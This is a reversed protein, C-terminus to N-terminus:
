KENEDDELSHKLLKTLKLVFEEAEHDDDFVKTVVLKVHYELDYMGVNRAVKKLEIM